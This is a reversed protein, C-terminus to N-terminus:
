NQGSTVGQFQECIDIKHSQDGVITIHSFKATDGLNPNIGVLTKGPPHATIGELVVHRAYQTKCNGCSRYLKGFDEVEFNKIIMTGPGNHQFVKDAAKRAGGGNITMTQSAKTGKFTAADEGVDEWWVNELTCSGLCHIGDAAPAGIIVNKITAGDELDFIPKQSEGQGGDGLEKGAIFRELGGDFSKSVKITATETKTGKPTPWAGYVTVGSVVVLTITLLSWM